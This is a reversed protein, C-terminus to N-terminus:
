ATAVTARIPRARPAAPRTPRGKLRNHGDYYFCTARWNGGPKVADIQHKLNGLDDYGYYWTGMDPDSMQTKRGVNDYTIVTTAGPPDRVQASQDCM